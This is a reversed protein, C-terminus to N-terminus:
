LRWRLAQWADDEPGRWVAPDDVVALLRPQGSVMAQHIASCEPLSPLRSGSILAETAPTEHAVSLIGLSGDPRWGFLAAMNALVPVCLRALTCATQEPDLSSSLAASSQALFRQAEMARKRATVDQITGISGRPRHAEDFLPVASIVLTGRRQGQVELGLEVDLVEQGTAAARQMPLEEPQLARGHEDLYRIPQREGDPASLSINSDLSLGHLRAFWPNQRIHRCDRDRAIGIGVPIVDLLTQFDAAQRQLEQRTRELERRLRDTELALAVGGALAEALALADEGLRLEPRRTAFSLVGVLQGGLRLPVALCDLLGAQQLRPGEGEGSSLAVSVQESPGRLLGPRGTRAVWRALISPPGGPPGQAEEHPARFAAARQLAGDQLVDLDCWDGLEPLAVRGLCRFVDERGACAALERNMRGLLDGGPGKGADRESGETFPGPLVQQAGM